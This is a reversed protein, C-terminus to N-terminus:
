LEYPQLDGWTSGVEFDVSLTLPGTDWRTMHSRVMRAVEELVSRKCEVIISDHVSEVIRAPLGSASLELDLSVGSMLCVDSAWGQIPTNCAGREAGGKRWDRYGIDPFVRRRAPQGAWPVWIEGTDRVTRKQENIWDRVTAYPGFWAEILNEAYPIECSLTEALSRAGMQYLVAFNMTKAQDRQVAKGGKVKAEDIIAQCQEPTIGWALPAIMCATAAHFDMGTKLTSIMTSDGTIIATGFIELTKFDAQLLVWEDGSNDFNTGDAYFMNKILSAIAGRSPITQTAPDTKSLRGSRAGDLRAVPHVRGDKGIYNPINVAYSSYQKVLQRYRLLSQVVEAAEGEAFQSYRKLHKATTSIAHTKETRELFEDPVHASLYEGLEVNSDPDEIGAERKFWDTLYNLRQSLVVRAVAATGRDVAFGRETVRQLYEYAPYILRKRHRQIDPYDSLDKETQDLLRMTTLIDRAGYRRLVDPKVDRYVFAGSRKKYFKALDEDDAYHEAFHEKFAKSLYKQEKDMDHKSVPVGVRYALADLGGASEVNVLKTDIMTDWSIPPAKGIRPDLKLARVDYAFNHGGWQIDTFVEFSDRLKALPPPTKSIDPAHIVLVHDDGQRALTVLHCYHDGAYQIDHTEVDLGVQWGFDHSERLWEELYTAGEEGELTQFTGGLPKFHRGEAGAKAADVCRGVAGRFEKFHYSNEYAHEPKHTLGCYILGRPARVRLWPSELKHTPVASGTVVYAAAAGMVIMAVPNFRDVSYALYQVCQKRTSDNLTDSDSCRAAFDFVINGKFGEARFLAVVKKYYHSEKPTTFVVLAVEAGEGREVIPRRIDGERDRALACLTCKPGVVRSRKTPGEDRWSLRTATDLAIEGVGPPYLPLVDM